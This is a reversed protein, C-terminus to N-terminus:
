FLDRRDAIAGDVGLEDLREATSVTRVTWVNVDFGREHAREVIPTSVCRTVSPHVAVCGLDDAVDLPDPLDGDFLLARGLDPDADRLEALAGPVFSSVVVDNDHDAVTTAVDAALGTEKLEVNVGVDDPVADLVADLTPVGDGTDLVDCAALEDYTLDAVAGTRDTVRDVTADHIVVLEGSACRRVDLEVMDVHDAVSEMARVTNEPFQGACGRHAITKMSM